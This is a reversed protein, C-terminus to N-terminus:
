AVVLERGVRAALGQATVRGLRAMGEEILEPPRNSFNLRLTDHRPEDAFFPSGPM